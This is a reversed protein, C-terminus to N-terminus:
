GHLVTVTRSSLGALQEAPGQTIHAPLRMVVELELLGWPGAQAVMVAVCTNPGVRAVQSRAELLALTRPRGELVLTLAEAEAEALLAMVDREPGHEAAAAVAAAM